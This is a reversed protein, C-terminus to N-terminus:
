IQLLHIHTIYTHFNVTKQKNVNKEIRAQLLHLTIEAVWGLLLLVNPKIYVINTM